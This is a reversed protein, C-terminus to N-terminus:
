VTFTTNQLQALVSELVEWNLRTENAGHLLNREREREREKGSRRERGEGGLIGNRSM